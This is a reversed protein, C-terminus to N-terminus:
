SYYVIESGLSYGVGANFVIKTRVMGDLLTDSTDSVKVENIENEVGTLFGVNRTRYAVMKNSSLGNIRVLKTGLYDLEKDGQLSGTYQAALAQKYAKAINASVGIVLDEDDEIGAPIVNYVAAIQSVVNTPTISATASVDIVTSDATFQAELGSFSATSSDGQWIERDITQGLRSVMGDLIAEQLNSPIEADANFLGMSQAMYTAAFDEKCLEHSIVYKKTVIEKETYNIEGTPNWGCSYLALDSSYTLVPLHGSSIVNPIVTIMGKDITDSKKFAEVFLNGALAGNFQTSVNTSTAM